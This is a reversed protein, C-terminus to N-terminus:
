YSANQVIPHPVGLSIIPKTDEILVVHWRSRVDLSDRLGLTFAPELENTVVHHHINLARM